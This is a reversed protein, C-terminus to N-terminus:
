VQEVKGVVKDRKTAKATPIEDDKNDLNDPSVGHAVQFLLRM